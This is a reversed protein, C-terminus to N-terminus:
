AYDYYRRVSDYERCDLPLSHFRSSSGPSNKLQETEPMLRDLDGAGKAGANRRIGGNTVVWM